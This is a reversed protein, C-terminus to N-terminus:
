SRGNIFKAFKTSVARPVIRSGVNMARVAASTYRVAVGRQMARYGIYAVEEAGQPRFFTFMRSRGGDLNATAEFGTDTPGPCLATVTVGTGRLEENVAQSFSLVFAKTAYYMSMYPGASMSAVSSLNLIHGGGSEAMEAAYYYTLYMVACMNLQAMQYQRDWDSNVFSGHDGFGANNVLNDVRVNKEALIAHLRDIEDMQSLDAPVVIVDVAHVERLEAALEELKDASRAVLVVDHGDRAFIRAIEAGIGGSAGTILAYAM